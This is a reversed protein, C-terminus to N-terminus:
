DVDTIELNVNLFSSLDWLNNNVRLFVQEELNVPDTSLRTQDFMFGVMSFLSEVMVSGPPIFAVNIYKKKQVRLGQKLISLAFSSPEVEIDEVIPILLKSLEKEEEEYLQDEQGLSLKQM